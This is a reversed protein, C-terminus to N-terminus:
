QPGLSFSIGASLTFETVGDEIAIVPYYRLTPQLSLTTGGGLAVSMPAALLVPTRTSPSNTPSNYAADSNYTGARYEIGATPHVTLTASPTLTIYVASLVSFYSADLTRTVSDPAGSSFREFFGSCNFLVSIPSGGFGHITIGPSIRNMGVRDGGLQDSLFFHTASCSVDVIGDYSVGASVGAGAAGSQLVTLASVGVGTTNETLFLQQGRSQATVFALLLVIFLGNYLRGPHILM